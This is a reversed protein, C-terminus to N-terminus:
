VENPDVYVDALSSSLDATEVGNIIAGERLSGHKGESRTDGTTPMSTRLSSLTCSSSGCTENDPKPMEEHGDVFAAVGALQERDELM